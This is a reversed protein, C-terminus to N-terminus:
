PDFFSITGFGPNFSFSSDVIRNFTIQEKHVVKHAGSAVFELVEIMLPLAPNDRMLSGAGVKVMKWEIKGTPDAGKAESQYIPVFGPAIGPPADEPINQRYIKFFWRAKRTVAEALLSMKVLNSSYRYKVVEADIKITGPAKRAPNTLPLTKTKLRLLESVPIECGGVFEQQLLSKTNPDDCDWIEIKLTQRVEFQYKVTIQRVFM